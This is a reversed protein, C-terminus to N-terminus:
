ECVGVSGGCVCEGTRTTARSLTASCSCTPQTSPCSGRQPLWPSSRSAPWSCATTQVVPRCPPNPPSHRGSLNPASHGCPAHLHLCATRRFLHQTLGMCQPALVHVHTCACAPVHVPTCACANPHLCMCASRWSVYLLLGQGHTSGNGVSAHPLPALGPPHMCAYAHMLYLCAPTPIPAPPARVKVADALLQSVLSRDGAPMPLPQVAELLYAADGRLRHILPHLVGDVGDLLRRVDYAPNRTIIRELGAAAPVTPETTIPPSEVRAVASPTSHQCCRM